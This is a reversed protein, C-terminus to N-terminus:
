IVVFRAYVLEEGTDPDVYRWRIWGETADDARINWWEGEARIIVFVTDAPLDPRGSVPEADVSPETIFPVNDTITYGLVKNGPGGGYMGLLDKFFTGYDETPLGLTVNLELFEPPDYDEFRWTFVETEGEYSITAPALDGLYEASFWIPREFGGPPSKVSVTAEDVDGTWAAGPYLVYRLEPYIKGTFLGYGLEYEYTIKREANEAYPVALVVAVNEEMWAVPTGEEIFLNLREELSFSVPESGASVTFSSGYKSLCKEDTIYSPDLARRAEIDRFPGDVVEDYHDFEGFDRTIQERVDGEVSYKYQYRTLPYDVEVEATPGDNVLTFSASVSVTEAGLTIDVDASSLTVAPHDGGPAPFGHSVYFPPQGAAPAALVTLLSVILVGTKRM